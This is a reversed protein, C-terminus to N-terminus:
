ASQEKLHAAVAQLAATVNGTHGDWMDDVEADSLSPWNHRLIGRAGAEVMEASPTELEALLAERAIRADPQRILGRTSEVFLRAAESANEIEGEVTGDPKITLLARGDNAKICITPPPTPALTLSYLHEAPITIGNADIPQGGSRSGDTHVKGYQDTM